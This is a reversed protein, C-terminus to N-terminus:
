VTKPLEWPQRRQRDLYQNAEADDPFLEKV